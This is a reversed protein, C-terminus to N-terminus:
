SAYTPSNWYQQLIASTEKPISMSMMQGDGRNEYYHTVLYDIATLINSAHTELDDETFGAEYEVRSVETTKYFPRVVSSALDVSYQDVGEVKTVARIPAKPIFLITKGAKHEVFRKCPVITIRGVRECTAIASRLYRAILEDEFDHEVRLTQKVIPLSMFVGYDPKTVIGTRM